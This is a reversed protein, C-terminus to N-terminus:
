GEEGRRKRCKECDCVIAEGISGVVIGAGVFMAAWTTDRGQYHYIFGMGMGLIMLFLAKWLLNKRNIRM